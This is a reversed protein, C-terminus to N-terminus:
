TEPLQYISDMKGSTVPSIETQLNSCITHLLSAYFQYPWKVIMFQLWTHHHMGTIGAVCSPQSNLALEPLTVLVNDWFCFIFLLAPLTAWTTPSARSEIELIVFCIVFIFCFCFL